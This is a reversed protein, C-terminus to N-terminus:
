PASRRRRQYESLAAQASEADGSERYARYLLFHYSGDADANAIKNLEAIALKPKQEKLFVRALVVRTEILNPNGKLAVSAYQKAKSNDGQHEEIDAMIGNAEPDAPQKALVDQLLPIADEFQRQKWFATALGLSSGDLAPDLHMAKRYEPVAEAFNGQDSLAEAMLLHTRASDPELDVAKMLAKLAEALLLQVKQKLAPNDAEGNRVAKNLLADAMSRSTIGVGFWAEASTPLMVAVEKYAKNAPEYDRLALYAKALAVLPAPRAPDLEKAHRLHALAEHFHNLDFETLGAFLEASALNPNRRLANQFQILADHNKGALHLMIGFNSRIEPSDNGAAILQQYLQAARSYDGTAQASRIQDSLTNQGNSVALVGLFLLLFIFSRIM